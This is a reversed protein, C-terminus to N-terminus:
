DRVKNKKIKLNKPIDVINIVYYTGMTNGKLEANYNQSESCSAVMFSLALIVYFSHKKNIKM